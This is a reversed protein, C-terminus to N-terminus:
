QALDGWRSCAVTVSFQAKQEVVFFEEMEESGVGKPEEQQCEM